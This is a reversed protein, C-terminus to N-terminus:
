RKVKKAATSPRRNRGSVAPPDFISRGMWIVISTGHLGDSPMKHWAQLFAHPVALPDNEPRCWQWYFAQFFLEALEDNIEDLFGLASHAGLKVLERALRAGSYYLNLTVVRPPAKPNVLTDALDGYCVPRESEGGERLLMGDCLRGSAHIIEKFISPKNNELDKYFNDIFRATQHTDVGTVHIAEWSAKTTRIKNWLESLQPTALIKMLKKQKGIDGVAASIREEESDFQHIEQLRGPASEVFLVSKPPHPVVASMGNRFLRSILLPHFRGECRTGASLLYEWPIESAAEHVQTAGTDDRVWDHLEVEIRDATALRQLRDRSIGVGELGKLARAGISKRLDPDSAWRSRVRLVYMWEQALRELREPRTIPTEVVLNGDLARITVVPKNPAVVSQTNGSSQTAM